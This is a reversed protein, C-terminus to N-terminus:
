QTARPPRRPTRLRMRSFRADFKDGSERAGAYKGDRARRDLTISGSVEMLPARRQLHAAGDSRQRDNQRRPSFAAHPCCGGGSGTAMRFPHRMPSAPSVSVWRPRHRSPRMGSSFMSAWGDDGGRTRSGPERRPAPGNAHPPTLRLKTRLRSEDFTGCAFKTATRAIAGISYSFQERRRQLLDANRRVTMSITRNHKDAPARAIACANLTRSRTSAM